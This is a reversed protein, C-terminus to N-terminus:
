GNNEDEDNLIMKAARDHAARVRPVFTWGIFSLFAISMLVLGWSDAMQRLDEYIM